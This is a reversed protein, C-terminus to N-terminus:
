SRVSWCPLMSDGGVAFDSGVVPGSSEVTESSVMVRVVVKVVEGESHHFIAGESRVEAGLGM